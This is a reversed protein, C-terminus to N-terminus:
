GADEMKVDIEGDNVIDLEESGHLRVSRDWGSSAVFRGRPSVDCCLVRGQHGMLETQLIFDDATWLKVKGDFGASVLWSGRDQPQPKGTVDLLPTANPPDFYRFDAIGNTHVPLTTRVRIKRLDWVHLTGDSSDTLCDYGSVPSWDASLVDGGHGELVM